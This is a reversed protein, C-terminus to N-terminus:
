VFLVDRDMVTMSIKFITVIMFVIFIIFSGHFEYLHHHSQSSGFVLSVMFMMFLMIVTSSM